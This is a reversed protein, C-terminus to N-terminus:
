EAVDGFLEEALHDTQGRAMAGLHLVLGRHLLGTTDLVRGGVDNVVDDLVGHSLEKLPVGWSFYRLDPHEIGGATGTREEETCVLIEEVPVLFPVLFVIRRLVGFAAVGLEVAGNRGRGM